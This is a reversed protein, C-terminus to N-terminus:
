LELSGTNNTKAICWTAEGEANAPLTSVVLEHPQAGTLTVQGNVVEFLKQQVTGRTGDETTFFFGGGEKPSKIVTIKGHKAKFFELTM